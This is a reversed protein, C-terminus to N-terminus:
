ISGALPKESVELTEGKPVNALVVVSDFGEDPKDDSMEAASGWVEAEANAAEPKAASELDEVEGNPVKPVVELVGPALGKPLRPDASLDVASGEVVREEFLALGSVFLTKPAPAAGAEPPKPDAPADANPAEVVDAKPVRPPDLGPSPKLLPKPPTPLPPSLVNAAGFPGLTRPVPM